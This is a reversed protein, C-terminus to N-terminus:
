GGPPVDAEEVSLDVNVKGTIMTGDNGTDAFQGSFLVVEVRLRFRKTHGAAKPASPLELHLNSLKELITM